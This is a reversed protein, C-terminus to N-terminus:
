GRCHPQCMACGLPCTTVSLSPWTAELLHATSSWSSMWRSRDSDLSWIWAYFHGAGVLSEVVQLIKPLLYSDKKMYANLHCFDLCFCLSRDKKQVLVVANCWVSQSPCIMGLDLVEWLHVHVEEVLPLLIQRFWEKFPIDNTVKIVHETSHTCGLKCPELSFIDHYEVLLLCASETLELSWSELKSLELKEFLKEWWQGVTINQTHICQAEDLTDIMGSVMQPELVWNATVVRAVLVKKKLTHPCTTSSRVATIVDKSSNCMETYANQIMLVQSLPVEDAHVAHTM